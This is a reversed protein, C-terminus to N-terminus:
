GANRVAGTSFLEENQYLKKFVLFNFGLCPAIVHSCVTIL